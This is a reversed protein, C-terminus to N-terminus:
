PVVLIERDPTFLPHEPKGMRRLAEAIRHNGNLVEGDGLIISGGIGDPNNMSDLLRHDDMGHTDALKDADGLDPLEFDKLDGLKM